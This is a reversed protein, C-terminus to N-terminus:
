HVGSYVENSPNLQEQVEHHLYLDKRYRMIVFYVPIANNKWSVVKKPM